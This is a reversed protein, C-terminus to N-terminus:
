LLQQSSFYLTYVEGKRKVQIEFEKNNEQLMQHIGLVGIEYANQKNISIVEDDINLGARQAPSDNSLQNIIIKTRLKDTYAVEFGTCNTKIV